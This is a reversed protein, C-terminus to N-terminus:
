NVKRQPKLTKFEESEEFFKKAYKTTYAEFELPEAVYKDMVDQPFMDFAMYKQLKIPKVGSAKMILEGDLTDIEDATILPAQVFNYNQSESSSNNNNVGKSTSTGGTEVRKTSTGCLKSFFENTTTNCNGLCMKTACNGIISEAKEKGYVDYMQTINQIILAAAIGYKRCTALFRELKELKGVNPLEDLIAILPVPLKRKNKGAVKYLRQFLQNYMLNVMSDWSEDMPPTIVYLISKKMALEDLIFDSGSMFYQVEEDLYNSLTTVISISISSRTKAKSKGFGMTYARRAPHNYPLSLFKEDLPSVGDEDQEMDTDQLFELIGPLSCKEKPMEYKSYLICCTLLSVQTNYWIDKNKSDNRSAVIIEAITIADRQTEVYILPNHRMSAYMNEFNLVFVQYGQKEKIKATAAYVEGSPDTVVMSANQINIVNPIVFGQSKGGGPGSAIFVNNNPLSSNWPLSVMHNKYLGLIFSDERKQKPKKKQTKM